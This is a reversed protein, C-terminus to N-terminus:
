RAVNPVFIREFLEGTPEELAAVEQLSVRRVRQFIPHMPDVWGQMRPALQVSPHVPVEGVAALVEAADPGTLWRAFLAAAHPRTTGTAIQVYVTATSTGEPAYWDVEAGAERAPELERVSAFVACDIEGALLRAAEITSRGGAVGGNAFFRTLWDEAGQLGREAVMTIFWTEASPLICGAYEPRLFDDWERPQLTATREVWPIVQPAIRFVVAHDEVYVAPLGEAVIVGHHLATVGATLYDVTGPATTAIVDTQTRGARHEALVREDMDRVGLAVYDLRVGPHQIEFANKLLELTETGSSAYLVLGGEQRAGQLLQALLAAEDEIAGLQAFREEVSLPVEISRADPGHTAGACAALVVAPLVLAAFCPRRTPRL